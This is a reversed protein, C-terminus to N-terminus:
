IKLLGIYNGHVYTGCDLYDYDRLSDKIETYFKTDDFVVFVEGTKKWIPMFRNIEGGVQGWNHEGDILWFKSKESIVPWKVSLSDGILKVLREDNVYKWNNEIDCSFLKGNKPLESLFALSSCGRAAGVECVYKTKLLRVCAALFKYYRGGRGDTEHVKGIGYFEQYYEEGSYDDPIKIGSLDIEPMIEIAKEYLERATM